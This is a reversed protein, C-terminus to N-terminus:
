RSAGAGRWVERHHAGERRLAPKRAQGKAYSSGGNPLTSPTQYLVTVTGSPDSTCRTWNPTLSVSTTACKAATGPYASGPGTFYVYLPAGSLCNGASDTVTVTVPMTITVASGAGLSGSPAIPTPSATVSTPVSSTGAAYIDCTVAGAPTAAILAAGGIPLAAAVLGLVGVLGYSRWRMAM